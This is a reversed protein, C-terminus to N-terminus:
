YDYYAIGQEDTGRWDLRITKTAPQYIWGSGGSAEAPFAQNNGLVQMTNLNNFPNRPMRRLYRQSQVTQQLFAASSPTEAPDDNPYGPPVGGHQATYVEIASRLIRLDDKAAAEKAETTYERFHPLVIAALIGLIAVIIVLEVLSFGQKM